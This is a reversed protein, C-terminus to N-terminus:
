GRAAEDVFSNTYLRTIDAINAISAEALNDRASTWLAPINRMLNDRGESLWLEMNGRVTRTLGPKDRIGPIDFKAAARDLIPELPGRLMEEVSAKMARVFGLVMVPQADIIAQTTFYCQSPMKAYRDTSWALIPAKQQELVEVVNSTAIFGDIRGQQLLAFSGPNNGVVERPVETKPIGVKHLMLDLFNETTGGISVVGIRKGRFDEARAIPKAKDSIVDFTSGQFITAVSVLGLGPQAGVAKVADIAAGRIFQCRGAALQQTSAAAGGAGLVQTDLGAAQFHGGASANMMELFDIIFGFPTLVTAPQAALAPRTIPLMAAASIFARRDLM